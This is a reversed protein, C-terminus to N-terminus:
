WKGWSKWGPPYRTVMVALAMAYKDATVTTGIVEVM